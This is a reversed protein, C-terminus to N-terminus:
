DYTKPILRAMVASIMSNNIQQSSSASGTVAPWSGVQTGLGWHEQLLSSLLSHLQAGMVEDSSSSRRASASSKRGARRGRRRVVASAPSAGTGAGVRREGNGGGTVVREPLLARGTVRKAGACLWTKFTGVGFCTRITGVRASISSECLM